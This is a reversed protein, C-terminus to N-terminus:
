PEHVVSHCICFWNGIRGDKLGQNANLGLQAIIDCNCVNAGNSQPLLHPGFNRVVLLYSCYFYILGCQGLYSGGTKCPCM